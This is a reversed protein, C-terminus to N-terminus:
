LWEGSPQMMGVRNNETDIFSAYTGYGPIEMPKGLVKGGAATIDKISENIDEVAIVVSPHPASENTKPYFGGNIRGPEKPRGKEDIEATTVLVYNGMDDDLIQTKWGFVRSYFDTMRGTDLAPMEFHVVSNMKKM